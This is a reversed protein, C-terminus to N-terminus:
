KRITANAETIPFIKFGFYRGLIAISRYQANKMPVPPNVPIIAAAKLIGGSISAKIAPVNKAKAVRRFLRM